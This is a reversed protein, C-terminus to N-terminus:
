QAGQLYAWLAPRQERPARTMIVAKLRAPDTTGRSKEADRRVDVAAYELGRYGPLEARCWAEQKLGLGHRRGVMALQRAVLKEAPTM